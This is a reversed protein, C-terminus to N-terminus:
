HDRQLGRKAILQHCLLFSYFMEQAKRCLSWFRMNRTNKRCM